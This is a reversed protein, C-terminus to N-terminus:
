FYVTFQIVAAFEEDDDVGNKQFYGRAVMHAKYRETCGIEDLKRKLVLQCSISEKRVAFCGPDLQTELLHFRGNRKAVPDMRRKAPRMAEEYTVPDVGAKM